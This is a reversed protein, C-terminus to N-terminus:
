KMSGIYQSPTCGMVQRFVKGWYSPDDYGVCAAIDRMRYEPHAQLMKASAMIRCNTLYINFTTDGYKRFLRSLYTRSIGMEDCVDQMSLQTSYHADIYQTVHQYLEQGTLKRDRSQVDDFLVSYVGALLEGYSQACSMLDLLEGIIDDLQLSLAPNTMCINHAIQRVAQWAQIQPLQRREWITALNLLYEKFQRTKGSTVLYTIQKIESGPIQTRKEPARNQPHAIMQNKGIIACQNLLRIAEAIFASLRKPMQPSLSYIVTWAFGSRGHSMYVGLDALYSASDAQSSLLIQENECRGQLVIFPEGPASVVDTYTLAPTKRIDPNGWRVLTFRYERNKFISDYAQQSYPHGCAIACLLESVLNAQERELKAAIRDLVGKFQPIDIPKLMYEDVSAHIAGKAYEFEAYGSIIIIHINPWLERAQTALEIGNMGHMSIDTILLDVPHEALYELAKKAGSFLAEVQFATSHKDILAHVYRLAPMEDDVIITRYM